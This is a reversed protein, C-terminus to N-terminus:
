NWWHQKGFMKESFGFFFFDCKLFLFSVPEINTLRARKEPSMIVDIGELGVAM